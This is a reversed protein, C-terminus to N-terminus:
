RTKIWIYEMIWKMLGVSLDNVVINRCAVLKKLKKKEQKPIKGGLMVPSCLQWVELLVPAALTSSTLM